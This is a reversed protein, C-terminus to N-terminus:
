VGKCAILTPIVRSPFALILAGRHLKPISQNKLIKFILPKTNTLIHRISYSCDHRFM